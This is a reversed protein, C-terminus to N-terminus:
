QFLMYMGAQEAGGIQHLAGEVWDMDFELPTDGPQQPLKRRKSRTSAQKSNKMQYSDGNRHSEQTHQSHVQKGQTQEPLPLGFSHDDDFDFGDDGHSEFEHDGSYSTNESFDTESSQTTDTDDTGELQEKTVVNILALRVIDTTLGTFYDQLEESDQFMHLIIAIQDAQHQQKAAIMSSDIISEAIVNHVFHDCYVKLQKLDMSSLQKATKKITTAQVVNKQTETNENQLLSTRRLLDKILGGVFDECYGELNLIESESLRLHATSLGARVNPKLSHILAEKITMSAAEECIEELLLINLSKDCEDDDDDDEYSESRSGGYHDQIHHHDYQYEDNLNDEESLSVRNAAANEDENNGDDGNIDDGGQQSKDIEEGPIKVNLPRGPFACQGSIGNAGSNEEFAFQDEDNANDRIDLVCDDLDDEEDNDEDGVVIITAEEDESSGQNDLAENSSSSTNSSQEQTKELIVVNPEVHGCQDDLAETESNNDVNTERAATAKPSSEDTKLEKSESKGDVNENEPSNTGETASESSDVQNKVTTGDGGNDDMRSDSQNAPQNAEGSTCINSPQAEM